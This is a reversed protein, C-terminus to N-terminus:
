PMLRINLTKSSRTTMTKKCLYIFLGICKKPPIPKEENKKPNNDPIIEIAVFDRVSFVKLVISIIGSLLGLFFSSFGIGGFFHMPRNMYKHLFVIVVLDLLVKFIRSMGYNSKGHKRINYSIPVETIKAGRWSAYAPIFRHMEGYLSVGRLIDAKYAKMICGFDHLKVGTIKSIIWNATVSPLRRKLWVLVSGKWRAVRWGSVVTFGKKMEELLKPIDKPDSEMDSDMPIIVDGTTNSIGAVLASTQGKNFKFSIVKIRSDKNAYNRLVELSKDRSCDNVALLEYDYKQEEMVAYFSDFFMPLNKEENYIPIEVTLKM